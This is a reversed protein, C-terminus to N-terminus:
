QCVSRKRLVGFGYVEEGAATEGASEYAVEHITSLAKWVLPVHCRSPDHKRYLATDHFAILGNPRVLPAYNVYDAMVSDIDHAGDILLVDLPRVGLCMSVTDITVRERSDYPALIKVRPLMEEPIAAGAEPNIDAAIVNLRPMVECYIATDAGTNCGIELMLLPNERQLFDCFRACDEVQQIILDKRPEIIRTIEALSKM